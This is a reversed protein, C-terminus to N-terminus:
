QRYHVFPYGSIFLTRLFVGDICLHDINEELGAYSLLDVADQEGFAISLEKQRDIQVQQRRKILNPQKTDTDKSTM